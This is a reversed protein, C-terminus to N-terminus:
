AHAEEEAIGYKRAAFEKAAYTVHRVLAPRWMRVKYAKRKGRMTAASGADGAIGRMGRV